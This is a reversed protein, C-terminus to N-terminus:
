FYKMSTKKLEETSYLLQYDDINHEQILKATLQEVQKKSQGHIMAYLNYPWDPYTKRQYCHSIEQRAAFNLGIKEIKEQSVQCALMGNAQYGSDLHYLLASIRKLKGQEKLEEIRTIVKQTSINLKAAIKDFPRTELPINSQLEKIIAKDIETLKNMMM